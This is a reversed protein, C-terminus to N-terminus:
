SCTAGQDGYDSAFPDSWNHIPSEQRLLDYDIDGLLIIEKDQNELYQLVQEFKEFLLLNM